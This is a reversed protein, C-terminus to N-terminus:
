KEKSKFDKETRVPIGKEKLLAAFVGDGDTLTGTFTGDYIQGCGCSPSKAKLIAGQIPLQFEQSLELVRQWECAAGETFAATVDDGKCTLIRGDPQRESPDRPTPLGGAEEPCVSAYYREEPGELFDLVAENRNNGGNYKCNKGLLCASVIIM